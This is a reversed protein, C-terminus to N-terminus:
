SGPLTGPDFKTFVDGDSSQSPCERPGMQYSVGVIPLEDGLQPQFCNGSATSTAPKPWCFDYRWASVIEFEVRRGELQKWSISASIFSGLPDRPEQVCAVEQSATHSLLSCLVLALLARCAM